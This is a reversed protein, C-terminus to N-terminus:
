PAAKETESTRPAKLAELLEAAVGEKPEPPAVRQPAEGAPLSIAEARLPAARELRRGSALVWLAFGAPIFFGMEIFLGSSWPLGQVGVTFLPDLVAMVLFFVALVQAMRTALQGPSVRAAIAPLQEGIRILCWTIATLAIWALAEQGKNYQLMLGGKWWAIFALLAITGGIFTNRAARSAGPLFERMAAAALLPLFLIGAAYSQSYVVWSDPNTDWHPDLWLPFWFRLKHTVLSCVVVDIVAVSFFAVLLRLVSRVFRSDSFAPTPPASRQGADETPHTQKLHDFYRMASHMMSKRPLLRTLKSMVVNRLGPIVSPKRGLASLATAVIEEPTSVGGPPNHIPDGCRAQFRTRVHGPSM